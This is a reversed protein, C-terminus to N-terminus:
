CRASILYWIALRCRRCVVDCRATHRTSMVSCELSIEYGAQFCTRVAPDASLADFLRPVAGLLLTRSLLELRGSADDCDACTQPVFSRWPVM